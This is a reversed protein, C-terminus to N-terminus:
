AAHKCDVALIQSIKALLEPAAVPKPLLECDFGKARADDLAEKIPARWQVGSVHVRAM